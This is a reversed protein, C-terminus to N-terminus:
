QNDKLNRLTAQSTLTTLEPSRNQDKEIQVTIKVLRISAINVPLALPSSTGAYNEDYYEFLSVAVGNSVDNMLTSITESSLVYGPPSGSALVIGRKVSRTGSDLFYRIRDAIGDSNVDAFFILTSTGATDITYAGQASPSASRLESVMTRLISRGELIATMSAQASSNLSLVNRAFLTVVMVILTTITIAFLLEIVSFGRKKIYAKLKIM